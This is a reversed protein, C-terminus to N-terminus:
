MKMPINDFNKQLQIHSGAGHEDYIPPPHHRKVVGGQCSGIRVYYAMKESV